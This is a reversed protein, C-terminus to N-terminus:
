TEAHAIKMRFTEIQDLFPDMLCLIDVQSAIKIPTIM